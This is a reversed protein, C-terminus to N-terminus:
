EADRKRGRKKRAMDGGAEKQPELWPEFVEIMEDIFDDGYGSGETMGFDDLRKRLKKREENATFDPRKNPKM